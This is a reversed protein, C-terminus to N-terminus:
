CPEDASRPSSIPVGQSRWFAVFNSCTQPGTRILENGFHNATTCERGPILKLGAGLEGIITLLITLLYDIM